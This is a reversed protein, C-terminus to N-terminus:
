RNGNIKEEEPIRLRIFDLVKKCNACQILDLNLKEKKFFKEDPMFQLSGCAPCEVIIKSIYKEGDLNGEIKISLKM